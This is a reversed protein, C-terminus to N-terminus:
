PVVFLYQTCPPYPITANTYFHELPVDTAYQNMIFKNWHIFDESTASRIARFGGYEKETWGRSYCRYFSYRSDWFAINQSDFQGETLVPDKEKQRWHIGDESVFALPPMGALAKWKESAPCDTRTDIFPAFNHSEKGRWVINNEKSGKFDFLGLNPRFFLIGDNSEAMCTVQQDDLDNLCYGRYYLRYVNNDKLITCYAAAPGEWPKDFSFIIEREVPTALKLDAKDFSEVLFRDVFPELRDGITIASITNSNEEASFVVSKISYAASIIFVLVAVNAIKNVVGCINM